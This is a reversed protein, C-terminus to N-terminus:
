ERGTQRAPRMLAKRTDGTLAALRAAEAALVRRGLATLQYVRRRGATEASEESILGQEVTKQVISYFSGTGPNVLDGSRERIREVLALGHAPGGTLVLLLYYTLHTLPLFAAPPRSRAM